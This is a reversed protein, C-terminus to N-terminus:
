TLIGALVISGLIATAGILALWWLVISGDEM